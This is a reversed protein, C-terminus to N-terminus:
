AKGTALDLLQNFLDPSDEIQRSAVDMGPGLRIDPRVHYFSGKQEVIGSRVCLRLLDMSRDIGGGQALPLNAVLAPKAAVNSVIDVVIEKDGGRNSGASLALRVSFTDVIRKATTEVEKEVFSKTPDISKKSRVQNILIICSAHHLGSLAVELFSDVMKLWERHDDIKPRLSTASDFAVLTPENYHLNLFNLAGQLVDEGYNGTIFVLTNLDVGIKRMYPVDVYETPCLAVLLGGQQAQRIIEYLITTKGSSAEGYIEIAGSPLKGGLALDLTTIGTGTSLSQRVPISQSLEGFVECVERHKSRVTRKVEEVYPLM